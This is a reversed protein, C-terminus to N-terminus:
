KGGWLQRAEEGDVERYGTHTPTAFAAEPLRVGISADEVVVKLHAGDAFHAEIERPLSPGWRVRYRTRSPAIGVLLDMVESPSLPVGLVAELDAAGAAGRFFARESPFVATFEGGKAVAVLRAGSPGPIEVRLSDPREFAVLAKTRARLSPGRLSVRVRADYRRASQVRRLADGSPPALAPACSALLAAALCPPLVIPRSVAGAM